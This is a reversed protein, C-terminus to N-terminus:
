REGSAGATRSAGSEELAFKMLLTRQFAMFNDDSAIWIITRGGEQTVSLAEYNDTTVRADFWALERGEILVGSKLDPKEAVTLKVQIGDVLSVRRNLLLIRGDPLQAADTIRFGEPARYGLTRTPTGPEAPDGEFLLVPTIGGAAGARGESFILFRNDALRLMAEAGANARWPRMAAPQASVQLRWNRRDYRRVLNQREFSIWASRPAVAMAESDRAAKRTGPGGELWRGLMAASGGRRPVRFVYLRGADTLATVAGAEVHMASIGGFRPDNSRLWWGELSRLAGLRRATPADPRLSVPEATLRIVPPTVPARALSFPAFTTLLPFALLLPLVRM